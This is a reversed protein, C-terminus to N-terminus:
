SDHDGLCADLEPVTLSRVLHLVRRFRSWMDRAELFHIAWVVLDSSAVLADRWGMGHPIHILVRAATDLVISALRLGHARPAAPTGRRPPPRTRSRTRTRPPSASTALTRSRHDGSRHTRMPPRSPSPSPAAASPLM